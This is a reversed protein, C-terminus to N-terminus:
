LNLHFAFGARVQALDASQLPARDRALALELATLRALIPCDRSLLSAYVSLDSLMRQQAFLPAGEALAADLRDLMEAVLERQHASAAAPSITSSM